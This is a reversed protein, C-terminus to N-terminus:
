LMHGLRVLDLSRNSRCDGSAERRQRVLGFKSSIPETLSCGAKYRPPRRLELLIKVQTSFFCRERCRNAWTWPEDEVRGDPHRNLHGWARSRHGSLFPEARIEDVDYRGRSQGRVIGRAGELTDADDIGAQILAPYCNASRYWRREFAQKRWAPV